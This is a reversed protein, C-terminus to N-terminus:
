DEDIIRECEADCAMNWGVLFGAFIDAAITGVEADAVLSMIVPSLAPAFSRNENFADYGENQAIAVMVTADPVQTIM